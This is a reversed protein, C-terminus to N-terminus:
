GHPIVWMNDLRDEDGPLRDSAAPRDREREARVEEPSRCPRQLYPSTRAPADSLRDPM